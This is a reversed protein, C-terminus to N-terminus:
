LDCWAFMTEALDHLKATQQKIAKVSTVSTTQTHSTCRNNSQLLQIIEQTGFQQLWREVMWTPHSHYVGLQEATPIRSDLDLQLPQQWAGEAQLKVVKRLVAACRESKPCAAAARM